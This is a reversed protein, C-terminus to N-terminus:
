YLSTGLNSCSCWTSLVSITTQTAARRAAAQGPLLGIYFIGIVDEPMPPVADFVLVFALGAVLLEEGDLLLAFLLVFGVAFASLQQGVEGNEVIPPLEQSIAGAKPHHPALTDACEGLHVFLLLLLVVAFPRDTLEVLQQILILEIHPSAGAVRNVQGGCVVDLRVVM